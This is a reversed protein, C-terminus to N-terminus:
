GFKGTIYENTKENKPKTFIQKTEGYEILKGQYFFATKDSIRAAQQMSHTVMIITYNKKLDLILKEVKAAAIPDLASTPEDMLLVDPQNAIARAICLRQQQGGSLGTALENLNDKVQEYIAARKLSHEVIEKLVAKNKVGNIRPGYSVNKFISMPFPNPQQFVMGVKTRLEPLTITDTSDYINKLTLIDMENNLIIKGEAKFLPIEDNIRNLTKLFTSKGCGSPGIISIVQNKPFDMSIDYIAQKNGYFINLNEVSIAISEDVNPFMKKWELLLSKYQKRYKDVREKKTIQGPKLAESKSKLKEIKELLNKKNIKKYKVYRKKLSNIKEKQNKIKENLDFINSKIKKTSHLNEDNIKEIKNELKSLVENEHEIKKLLKELNSLSSNDISKEINRIKTKYIKREYNVKNYAIEAQTLKEEVIKKDKLIEKAKRM